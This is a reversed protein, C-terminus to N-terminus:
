KSMLYDWEKGSREVVRQIDTELLFGRAVLDRAAAEIKALYDERSTYREAISPRPDKTRTRDAKTKAFPFWSGAFAYSQEPAGISPARFNWGTYTGLPVRVEPMHVGAIENGDSDVQPVLTPFAKGVVPPENAVIGNTKFASGFDLHFSEVYHKPLTVGALHPFATKSPAVLQQKALLPIQSAPPEKGEKMWELLRMLLARELPRQDNPNGTYRRDGAQPPWSGPGHQAGALFYIRTQPALPADHLGDPTTHILSAARGWYEYSGNTYFIKPMQKVNKLLGDTVAGDTEDLDTFPFIDTPYLFNAFPQADRSPQAFRHNFSGRGAGAVDAWVGDFVRRGQEDQNFGDYLFKRLFRGSQSIGFGIAHKLFGPQDGLVNIGSSPTGYKLYSIFDRVAAPGLGVVSPNKATYVVEYILGPEFGAAMTVGGKGDFQWNSHPITKRPADREPRVTLVNAANNPDAVEYSIHDRDGLNFGTVRKDPVFESRVLGTITKGNDTIVPAHVAMRGDKSPVDFQWGVWVLTFGQNMLLRDGFDAATRPDTTGGGYQFRSLMAKGGRNNIELLIAGNGLAPDRPKLVYLDATFEVLGADSRPAFQIDRIIANAPLKPDVAYHVSAIIREYPGAKGFSEGNLVDSRESVRVATVSSFALSSALIGLLTAHRFM